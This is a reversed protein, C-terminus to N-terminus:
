QHGSRTLTAPRYSSQGACAALAKAPHLDAESGARALATRIRVGSAADFLLARDMDVALNVSQGTRLQTDTPLRVTLEHGHASMIALVDPGTPELLEVTARIAAPGFAGTEVVRLWEPRLGLTVASRDPVM